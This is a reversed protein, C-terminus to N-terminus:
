KKSSWVITAKVCLGEEFTNDQDITVLCQHTCVPVPVHTVHYLWVKKHPLWCLHELLSLTMQSYNSQKLWYEKRNSAVIVQSMCTCLHM